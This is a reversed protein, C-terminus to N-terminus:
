ARNTRSTSLEPTIVFDWTFPNKALATPAALTKIAELIKKWKHPGM